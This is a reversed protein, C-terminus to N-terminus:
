KERSGRYADMKAVEEIQTLKERSGRDANMKRSQRSRCGNEGSGRDADMKAVEEIQMLKGRSGRDANM